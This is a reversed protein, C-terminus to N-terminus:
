ALAATRFRSSVGERLGRKLLDRAIERDLGETRIFDAIKSIIPATPSCSRRYSAHYSELIPFGDCNKDHPCFKCYKDILQRDEIIGNRYVDSMSINLGADFINGICQSSEYGHRRLFLDGNTNVLFVSDPQFQRDLKAVPIEAIQLLASQLYGDIPDISIPYGDYYNLLFLDFLFDVAESESISFRDLPRDEDGDRWILARFRTGISSYYQYVEKVKEVNHRGIVAIGGFPVAAEILRNINSIVRSETAVGSGLNRAGSIVDCSIGLGFGMKTLSQIKQMDLKYLNTQIANRVELDGFISSQLALIEDFVALPQLLPEGGHWIFVPRVWQGDRHNCFNHYNLVNQFLVLLEGASVSERRHLEPWEYCYGCRLNCFKSLKVVWSTM